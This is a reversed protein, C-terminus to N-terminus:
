RARMQRIIESMARRFNGKNFYPRVGIRPVLEDRAVCLAVAVTNRVLWTNDCSSLEAVTHDNPCDDTLITWARAKVQEYLPCLRITM